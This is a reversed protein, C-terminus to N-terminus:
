ITYRLLLSNKSPVSIGLLFSNPFLLACLNTQFCYYRLVIIYEQEYTGLENVWQFWKMRIRSNRESLLGGSSICSSSSATMIIILNGNASREHVLPALLSIALM